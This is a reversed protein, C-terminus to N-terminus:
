RQHKLNRNVELFLWHLPTNLHLPFPPPPPPRHKNGRFLIWPLMLVDAVMFLVCTGRAFSQEVFENGKKKKKKKGGGREEKKNNNNYVRYM